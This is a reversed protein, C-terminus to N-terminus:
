YYLLHLVAVFLLRDHEIFADNIDLLFWLDIRFNILYSIILICFETPFELKCISVFHLVFNLHLLLTIVFYKFKLLFFRESCFAM